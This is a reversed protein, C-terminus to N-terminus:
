GAPAAPDTAAPVTPAVTAPANAPPVTTAPVTAPVTATPVTTTPVTTASSAANPVTTVTVGDAIVFSSTLEPLDGITSVANVKVTWEGPAAFKLGTDPGVLAAGPRTLPVYFTYGPFEPNSPTMTIIFNQVRAPGFLEVLVQNAGINGPTVSLRVRFDDEGIMDNVIAYDVKPGTDRPVVYPPRMALLWSSLALIIVSVALEVGAPRHLRWVIRENLSRARTLAGRIFQRTAMAVFLLVGVLVTKLLVVRGHGSNILSIGDLRWVQVVGTVVMLVTLPVFMRRWAQLAYVLDIEGPGHLVVRWVILISGVWMSTSAVHLVSMVVGLVVARGEARDFGYSLMSLALVVSSVAVYAQEQIRATIWAFYSMGIVAVFRVLLARGGNSDFLVSWETPVLSGILSGDTDRAVVVAMQLYVFVITIVSVLRFYRETIQYEDGEPWAFRIFLLGGFLASVGIYSMWRLLGIVGGLRLPTDPEPGPVGPITPQPISDGPAVSTTTAQTASTFSFSGESGDPLSWTVSCSGNPPIQTLAASVTVGDSALQPPGLNVIKSECTLVLGMQAVAADGGVPLTFRLQIQTPPATITEGATPNSSSLTNDGAAHAPAGLAVLAFLAGFFVLLSSSIRRM